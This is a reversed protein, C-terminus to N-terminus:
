SINPFFVDGILLIYKYGDDDVPLYAIDMCVFQMPAEPIVRPLLLARPSNSDSKTKACTTCSSIFVSVHNFMNLLFFRAKLLAYTKEVGLHPTNHIESVIYNRLPPIVPRGSKTLIDEELRLQRQVRKLRGTRIKKEERIDIIANRIIPDNVQEERLQILFREKNGEINYIKIEINCEPQIHSAAKNRTLADAKVNEKGPIYKVTYNFEELESIWRAFKDRPDKQSRLHVLQNHDFHIIFETGTLYTYWHRTALVLAFAEITHTSWNRQSPTLTPFYAVPHLHEDNGSQM